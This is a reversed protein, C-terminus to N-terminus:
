RSGHLRLGVVFAQAFACDRGQETLHLLSRDRQEETQGDHGVAEVDEVGIALARGEFDRRGLGLKGTLRQAIQDKCAQRVVM